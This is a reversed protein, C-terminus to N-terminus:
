GRAVLAIYRRRWPDDIAVWLAVRSAAPEPLRRAVFERLLAEDVPPAPPEPGPSGAPRLARLRAEIDNM